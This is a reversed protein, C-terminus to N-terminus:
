YIRHASYLATFFSNGSQVPALSLRNTYILEESENKNVVEAKDMDFFKVMQCLPYGAIQTFCFKDEMGYGVMEVKVFWPSDNTPSFYNRSSGAAM